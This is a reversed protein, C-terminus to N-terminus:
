RGSRSYNPVDPPQLNQLWEDAEIPPRLRRVALHIFEPRTFLRPYERRFHPHLHYSRNFLSARGVLRSLTERNGSVVEQQFVVRRIARKLLRAMVLSLPYDLWVLTDARGWLSDRVSRIDGDVVWSEGRTAALVSEYLEEATAETWGRKVQLADLEIAALSLRAAARRALVSKGAGPVGVICIRSASNSKTDSCAQM